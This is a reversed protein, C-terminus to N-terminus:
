DNNASLQAAAADPLVLTAAPYIPLGPGIKKAKEMRFEGLPTNVTKKNTSSRLGLASIVRSAMLLGGGLLVCFRCTMAIIMFLLSQSSPGGSSASSSKAM